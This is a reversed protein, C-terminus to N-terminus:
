VLRLTAQLLQITKKLKLVELEEKHTEYFLMLVPTQTHSAM